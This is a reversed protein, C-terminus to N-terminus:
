YFFRQTPLLIKICYLFLWVATKVFDFGSNRKIKELFSATGSTFAAAIPPLRWSSYVM